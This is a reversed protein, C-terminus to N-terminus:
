ALVRWALFSLAAANLIMLAPMVRTGFARWRQGAVHGALGIAILSPMTGLAFAAMGIGGALANGSAAAAALAGYLLGCPLFGLALGLVYGRWGIPRRFLPQVRRGVTRSWWSEGGRTLWAGIVKLRSLGYSLFFLAALMLLAASLWRLGSLDMVGGALAAAAAGLGMYTTMRGLHYPILAAGAVRHFERMESAPVAELRAMAQGLVFPGCMGVCHAASGVLGALFLSVLLSGHSEVAVRCHSLGAALLQTLLPDQDM